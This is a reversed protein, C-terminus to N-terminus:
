TPSISITFDCMMVRGGTPAFGASRVTGIRTLRVAGRGSGTFISSIM